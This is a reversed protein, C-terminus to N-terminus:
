RFGALELINRVKKAVEARAERYAYAMLEDVDDDAPWAEYLTDADCSRCLQRYAHAAVFVDDIFGIPGLEDDPIVDNQVVFYALVRSVTQRADRPLDADAYLVTYFRYLDPMRNIM